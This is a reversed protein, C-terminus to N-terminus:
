ECCTAGGGIACVFFEADTVTAAAAAEQPLNYFNTLSSTGDQHVNM